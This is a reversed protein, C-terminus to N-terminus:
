AAIGNSHKASHKASASRVAALFEEDAVPKLFFAMAGANMAKARIAPDDKSTLIIVKSAPSFDRLQRQVELGDMAPMLIDLVVVQPNAGKAHCLFEFPDTFSKVKWGASLLLRSTAKVVSPDDDLLTITVHTDRASIMDAERRHSSPNFDFV